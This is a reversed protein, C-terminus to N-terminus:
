FGMLGVMGAWARSVPFEGPYKVFDAHGDMYLVNGGGPLHNFGKPDIDVRDFMVAYASQSIIARSPDNIDTILFREIGDRLRLIEHEEGLEDTFRWSADFVEPTGADFVAQFANAFQTSADRTGPEQLWPSRLLYGIYFYSISDLMCPMISGGERGGNPGDTRRWRGSRELQIADPSSPCALVRAEALYEPYMSPGDFMLVGPNPQGCAPGTRRQLTPYSGASESSYMKFVIGMQRLNNSCSTRRAAERARALGPLLMAALVGIIGIVVLLEILTFGSRGPFTQRMGMFGDGLM